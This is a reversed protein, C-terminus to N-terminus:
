RFSKPNKSVVLRGRDGDTHNKLASMRFITSGHLLGNVTSRDICIVEIMRIPQHHRIARHFIDM